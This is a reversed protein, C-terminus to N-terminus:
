AVAHRALADVLQLTRINVDMLGVVLNSLGAFRPDLTDTARAEDLLESVRALEERLDHLKPSLEAMNQEFFERLEDDTMTTRRAIPALVLSPAGAQLEARHVTSMPPWGLFHRVGRWIQREAHAPRTIGATEHAGVDHAEQEPL